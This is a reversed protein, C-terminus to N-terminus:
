RQGAKLQAEFDMDHKKGAIHNPESDPLNKSIIHYSHYATSIVVLLFCSLSLLIPFCPLTPSSAAVGVAYVVKKREEEM